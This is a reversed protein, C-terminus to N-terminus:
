KRSQRNPQLCVSGRHFPLAQNHDPSAYSEIRENHRSVQLPSMGEFREHSDRMEVPLYAEGLFVPSELLPYSKSSTHAAQQRPVSKYDAKGLAM